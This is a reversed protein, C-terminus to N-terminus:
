LSRHILIRLAGQHNKLAQRIELYASRQIIEASAQSGHGVEDAQRNVQYFDIAAQDSVQRNRTLLRCDQLCDEVKSAHEIHAHQGLADLAPFLQIRQELETAIQALTM